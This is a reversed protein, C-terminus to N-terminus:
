RQQTYFSFVSLRVDAWPPAGPTSRVPGAVGWVGESSSVPPAVALAKRRRCHRCRMPHLVRPTDRFVLPPLNFVLPTEAPSSLGVALKACAIAQPMLAPKSSGRACSFLSVDLSILFLALFLALRCKIQDVRPVLLTCLGIFRQVSVEEQILQATGGEPAQKELETKPPPVERESGKHVCQCSALIHKQV